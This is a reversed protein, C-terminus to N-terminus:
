AGIEKMTYEIHHPSFKPASRQYKVKQAMERESPELNGSGLMARTCAIADVWEALEAPDASFSHDPGDMNHSLTFHKEFICAGLATAAVAAAAASGQTHDSFGIPNALVNRLTRIRALNAEAPPCPYQSTCVLVAVDLMGREALVHLAGHIDRAGSMGTSLIVPVTAKHAVHELMARNTLDDSGIKVAPVGVALLIDLDRPNQPTSMFLVKNRACEAKLLPWVDEPLQARRFINIRPETVEKGRSWYTYTQREDCVGEAMFTQFKVAHVGSQAAVEIMEIAREVSGNHNLGVEAILFPAALAEGIPHTGISFTRV